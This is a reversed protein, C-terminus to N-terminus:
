LEFDGIESINCHIYSVIDKVLLVRPQISSFMGKDDIQTTVEPHLKYNSEEYSTSKILTVKKEKGAKSQFKKSTSAMAISLNPSQSIKTWTM